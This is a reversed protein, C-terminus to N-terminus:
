DKSLIRSIKAATKSRRDYIFLFVLYILLLILAPIIGRILFGVFFVILPFIFVLLSIFIVSSEPVEIEVNDGASAGMNDVADVTLKGEPSFACKGGAQRYAHCKACASSEKLEVQVVKPDLRKIVKGIEKM